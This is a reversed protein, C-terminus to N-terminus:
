RRARELAGVLDAFTGNGYAHERLYASVGAVFVDDGLYASLQRM